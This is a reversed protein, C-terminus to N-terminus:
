RRVMNRMRRKFARNAMMAAIRKDLTGPDHQYCYGSPGAKRSCQKTTYHMRFGHGRHVRYTDRHEVSRKCFGPKPNSIDLSM